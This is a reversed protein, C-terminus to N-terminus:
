QTRKLTLAGHLSETAELMAAGPDSLLWPPLAVIREGPQACAGLREFGPRLCLTEAMGELTVLVEPDWMLLEETSLKPWGTYHEAVVNRLGAHTLVDHYSTNAGGSYLSTGFVSVYAATSRSKMPEEPAVREMRDMFSQAYREGLEGRGCLRAIARANDLFTSVGRMEGLDFVRIGAEELRRVSQDSGLTNLLVLDPDLGLLTELDDLAQLQPKGAYRQATQPNKQSYQTFSVIRDPECFELLLEDAITSGSAIRRYAVLPLWNGSRDRMEPGAPTSRVPFTGSAAEAPLSVSPLGQDRDIGSSVSLLLAVVAGVANLTDLKTM